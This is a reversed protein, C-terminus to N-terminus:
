LFVAIEMWANKGNTVLVLNTNSVSHELQRLFPVATCVVLVTLLFVTDTTQKNNMM